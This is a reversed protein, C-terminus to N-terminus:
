INNQCRKSERGREEMTWDHVLPHCRGPLIKLVLVKRVKSQDSDKFHVQKLM